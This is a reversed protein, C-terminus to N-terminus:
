PVTIMLISIRHLVTFAWFDHYLGSKLSAMLVIKNALRRRKPTPAMGELDSDMEEEEEEEVEEEEEEM